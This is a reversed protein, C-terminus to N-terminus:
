RPGRGRPIAVRKEPRKPWQHHKKVYPIFKCQRAWRITRAAKRHVVSKKRSRKPAHKNSTYAIFGHRSATILRPLIKGGQCLLTHLSYCAINTLDQYQYVCFPLETTMKYKTVSWKYILNLMKTKYITSILINRVAITNASTARVVCDKDWEFGRYKSRDSMRSRFKYLIGHLDKWNAPRSKLPRRLHRILTTVEKTKKRM